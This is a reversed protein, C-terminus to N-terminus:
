RDGRHEGDSTPEGRAHILAELESDEMEDLIETIALVATTTRDTFLVGPVGLDIRLRMPEGVVCAFLKLLRVQYFDGRLTLSLDDVERPLRVFIQRGFDLLYRSGSETAVVYHGATSHELSEM